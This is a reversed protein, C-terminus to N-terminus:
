RGQFKGLKQKVFKQPDRYARFRSAGYMILFLFFLLSGTRAQLNDWALQFVTVDGGALYMEEGRRFNSHGTLAVLLFLITFYAFRNYQNLFMQKIKRDCIIVSLIFGFTVMLIAFPMNYTMVLSVLLFYWCVALPTLIFIRKYKRKM